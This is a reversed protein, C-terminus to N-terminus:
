CRECLDICPGIIETWIRDPQTNAFEILRQAAIVDGRDQICRVIADVVENGTPSHVTAYAIDLDSDTDPDILTGSTTVDSLPQTLEDGAATFYHLEIENPTYQLTIM